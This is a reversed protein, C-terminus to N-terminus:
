EESLISSFVSPCSKESCGVLPQTVSLSPPLSLTQRAILETLTTDNDTDAQHTACCPEARGGGTESESTSKISGGDVIVVAGAVVASMLLLCGGLGAGLGLFTLTFLLQRPSPFQESIRM